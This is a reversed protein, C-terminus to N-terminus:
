RIIKKANKKKVSFGFHGIKKGLAYYNGHSYALLDAQEMDFAGTKPHIYKEDAHVAVVEAIFVDHSGLENIEIVKCEINMPSEAIMPANVFDAKVPTLNTEIFKRFDKGSKVGCWDTERALQTTTLNIVFSKTREILSYSHRNKRVSVYCMPPESCLTGTWAITIINYNDASDGCSVMVAPLPYIMTGPKWLQKSM